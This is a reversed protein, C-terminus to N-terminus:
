GSADCDRPFVVILMWFMTSKLWAVV